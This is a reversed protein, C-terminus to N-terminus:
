NVTKNAKKKANTQIIMNTRTLNVKEKNEYSCHIFTLRFKTKKELNKLHILFVMFLTSMKTMQIDNTQVVVLVLKLFM